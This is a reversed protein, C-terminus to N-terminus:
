ARGPSCFRPDEFHSGPPSATGRDDHRVVRLTQVTVALVAAILLIVIVTTTM